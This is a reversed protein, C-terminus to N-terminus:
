AAGDQALYTTIMNIAEDAGYAVVVAFGYHRLRDIWENQAATTHNSHDARKLEVFLGHYVKGGSIGRAVALFLDPVGARVGEAKLQAAVAPHRQGGNPIAFLMALEPHEAQAMAAWEFLAVQEEHESARHQMAATVPTVPKPADPNALNNALAIEGWRKM